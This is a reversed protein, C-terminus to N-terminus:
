FTPVGFIRKKLIVKWHISKAMKRMKGHLIRSNSMKETWICKIELTTALNKQTGLTKLLSSFLRRCFRSFVMQCHKQLSKLLTKHLTIYHLTIYHLTIYHLTIYHLTIYHLPSNAYRKGPRKSNFCMRSWYKTFLWSKLSKMFTISDEISALEKPAREM